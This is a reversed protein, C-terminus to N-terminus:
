PFALCMGDELVVKEIQKNYQSGTCRSCKDVEVSKLMQRHSDSGWWELISEPNPYASGLRFKAEMKKDVCLYGNGDTLIPLILTAFCRTFDHKVHFEPDFKHTVTYVHFDPTGEEHCRAFQEEIVKMNFDLKRAGEIDGREFDVPRVHFDQVGLEKALKCAKHITQYNEPLVLMKYCIDVKSNSKVRYDALHGINEVVLDFSYKGKIKKYTRFDGADVSFSVWRCVLLNDELEPSIAVGNTVFSVDMGKEVAYNPLGWVGKHLSPEGGGSICLGRVGWNALFDVLRYMYEQPLQRMEGVEERSHRLYRQGICFYCRLNCEAYPDLNCEIPPPLISSGNDLWDVIKKYNEYYCLGKWSCFSNYKNKESWEIM